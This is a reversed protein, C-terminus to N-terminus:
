ELGLRLCVSRCRCFVHRPRDLQSLGAGRGHGGAVIVGVRDDKKATISASWAERLWLVYLSGEEDMALGLSYINSIITEGEGRNQKDQALCWRIVRRNGYETVILFSMRGISSCQSHNIWSIREIAQERIALSSKVKHQMQNGDCSEIISKILSSFHGMTMSMSVIPILFNIWDMATDMTWWGRNSCEGAMEDSGYYTLSSFLRPFLLLLRWDTEYRKKAERTQLRILPLHTFSMSDEDHKIELMLPKNWKSKWSNWDIWGDAWIWSQTRKGNGSERNITQHHWSIIRLPNEKTSPIHREASNSCQRGVQKIREISKTKGDILVLSSLIPHSWTNELTLHQQLKIMNSVLQMWRDLWNKDINTWIDWASGNNADAVYWKDLVRQSMQCVSEENSIIIGDRECHLRFFYDDPSWQSCRCIALRTDIKKVERGISTKWLMEFM